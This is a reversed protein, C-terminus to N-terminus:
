VFAGLSRIFEAECALPLEGGARTKHGGGNGGFTKAATGIFQEFDVNATRPARASVKLYSEGRCLVFLPRNESEAFMDAVDSVTDVSDVM